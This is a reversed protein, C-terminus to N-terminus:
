GAERPPSPREADTATETAEPCARECGAAALEVPLLTDPDRQGMGSQWFTTGLSDLCAASCKSHYARGWVAHQIQLFCNPLGFVSCSWQFVCCGVTFCARLQPTLLNSSKKSFTSSKKFLAAANLPTCVNRSNYWSNDALSQKALQIVTTAGGAWSSYSFNRSLCLWDRTGEYPIDGCRLEGARSRCQRTSNCTNIGKLGSWRDESM